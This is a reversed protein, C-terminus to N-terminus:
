SEEGNEEVEKRLIPNNYTTLEFIEKGKNIIETKENNSMGEYKAILGSIIFYSKDTSLEQIKYIERTMKIVKVVNTDIKKQDKAELEKQITSLEKLEKQLNYKKLEAKEKATLRDKRKRKEMLSRIYPDEIELLCLNEVEVDNEKREVEKEMEIEKIIEDKGIELNNNM